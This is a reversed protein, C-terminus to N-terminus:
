YMRLAGFISLKWSLTMLPPSSGFAVFVPGWSPTEPGGLLPRKCLQWTTVSFTCQLNHGIALGCAWLESIQSLHLMYGTAGSVEWAQLVLMLSCSTTPLFPAKSFKQLAMSPLFFPLSGTLIRYFSRQSSLKKETFNNRFTALIRNDFVRAPKIIKHLYMM